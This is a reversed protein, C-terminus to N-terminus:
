ITGPARNEDKNPASLHQVPSFGPDPRFTKLLHRLARKKITTLLAM